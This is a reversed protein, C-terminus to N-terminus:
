PYPELSVLRGRNAMSETAAELLRVVRFGSEGDALVREGTEICRIFNLAETRLAETLDLQPAWMDGTRYGTLMQYISEATHDVTIGRDYVKVKESPDLDDYVIMKKSGGILTRRVKVPALWNVHVHAILSDQYLLTLYAIDEHKGKIHSVGTASLAIPRGPLVYDLISLDHVALDWIANVDDRFLGLNVRVSDYYYMEGLAGSAILDHIKRVAGTYVFTHDVLLVRRRREAEEVLRLAEESTAALPKAILIHKGATLASVGLEFHNAVPTAIVVADIDTRNLIDRADRTTDLTPYRKGALALRNSDLEAVAAVTAGPTEMFNRVLNPGWYGYGVIGLRIM